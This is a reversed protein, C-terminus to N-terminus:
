WRVQLISIANRGIRIDHVAFAGGITVSAFAKASDEGVMLRDIRVQIDIPTKGQTKAM